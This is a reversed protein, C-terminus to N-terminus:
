SKKATEGQKAGADPRLMQLEAVRRYGIRVYLANSTPNSLDTHLFAFQRGADLVNQTLAAVLAGAYGRGRLEPPTYVNNIRIGHPTPAVAAAVSVAQGGDEWVHLSCRSIHGDVRDISEEATREERLAEFALRRSWESLLERDKAGALRRVGAVGRPVVVDRCEYIGQSMVVSWAQGSAVAFWEVSALPGLIQENRSTAADAALAAMAGPVGERSLILKTDTRLAAAVVATGDLAVGCYADPAPTPDALAVGLMLGNEAEHRSLFPAARDVFEALSAP